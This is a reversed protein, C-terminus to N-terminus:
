HTTHVGKMTNLPRHTASNQEYCLACADRWYRGTHKRSTVSYRFSASSTCCTGTRQARNQWLSLLANGGNRWSRDVRTFRRSLRPCLSGVTTMSHKCTSMKRRTRGEGKPKEKAIAQNTEELTLRSRALWDCVAESGAWREAGVNGGRTRCREYCAGFVAGVDEFPNWMVLTARRAQRAANGEM